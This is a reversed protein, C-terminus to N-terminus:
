KLGGISGAVVGTPQASGFVVGLTVGAALLAAGGGVATWFWWRRTLDTHSRAPRTEPPPPTVLGTPAATLTRELLASVTARVPAGDALAAADARTRGDGAGIDRVAFRWGGGGRELAGVIVRQAGDGALALLRDGDPPQWASLPPTVRARETAITVVGGWRRYGPATVTVFHAGATLSLATAAAAGDITVAADAPVDIRADVRPLQAVEGAARKYASLARPPLRAPDLVRTPDLRAARVLDDWAAEAQGTESRCLWRYFYIDALQRGDLEGGGRAAAERELADLRALADDFAFRSWAAKAAELAPLLPPAPAPASPTADVVRAGLPRVAESFAARAAPGDAPAGPPEWYIAVTAPTAALAHAAVGVTAIVVGIARVLAYQIM